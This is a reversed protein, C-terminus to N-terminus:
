CAGRNIFNGSRTLLPDSSIVGDVEMDVVREIEEVTDANYPFVRIGAAHMMKVQGHTLIQHNPHWSVVGIQNCKKLTDRDAPQKSILGLAPSHNIRTLCKLIKLDFSSILVFDTISRRHILNVVQHEIADIPHHAEYAHPKIEINVLARGIALDLIESLEPVREGAFKPNFWSGADLKKLQKLTYDNVQGHGNTTRELTADHIVVLKRDKSLRVDLEIMPVDADLAAKFAILTNEPYRARYGRHAILWPPKFNNTEIFKQM